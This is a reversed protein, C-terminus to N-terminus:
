HISPLFPRESSVGLAQAVYEALVTWGFPTFLQSLMHNPVHCLADWADIPDIGYHGAIEHALCKGTMVMEEHGPDGAEPPGLLIEEIISQPRLAKAILEGISPESM